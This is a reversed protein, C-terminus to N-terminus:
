LIVVPFPVKGRGKIGQGVLHTYITHIVFTPHVYVDTHFEEKLREVNNVNKVLM